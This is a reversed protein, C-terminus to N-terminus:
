GDAVVVGPRFRPIRMVIRTGAEPATEVVLGYEAGYVARLRRDVNLLAVGAGEATGALVAGAREPSMGPGDDEVVIVCVDGEAEGSVQVLGGDGSREVGHQVANEVLPQLALVPVPVPLVEPAVRVQVRLRPGLVARALTLYAEVARFEGALPVYDGGWLGAFVGDVADLVPRDSRFNVTIREEGGASRASERHRRFGEVDAHRFRYISQREDGVRFGNDRDLLALIENQLPNTDQFEDVMVHVFRGAYRERVGEDDRLLDRALLELDDFDLGSRDWKRQAYHAGYSDVLARLLVHDRYARDAACLAAYATQAAGYAECAPGKLAKATGKLALAGTESPDALDGDLRDLLALAAGMRGRATDVQKGEVGALEALGAQVAARLVGAQDGVEPRPVEPLSPRLHGRSRQHAYVTRVMRALKDPTYSALLRLREPHDGEGVFEALARDFADIALREADLSDLVVFEPDLGAALAHTRLVRACFGHITSIWADEAARAHDSQDLETFRRRVRETLQAAAKETFTIALIADVAVGDALVSQVFREVLVSTKGTGAGASVLVSGSRRDIARQQEPTFDVPVATVGGRPLDLPALLGRAM